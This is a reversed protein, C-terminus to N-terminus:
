WLLPSHLGSCQITEKSGNNVHRVIPGSSPEAAKPFALTLSTERRARMAGANLGGCKAYQPLRDGWQLYPRGDVM